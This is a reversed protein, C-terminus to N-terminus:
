YFMLRGKERFEYRLDHTREGIQKAPIGGVLTFPPVDRTVVAGAAVVAGEGISVGHLIVVNPGIWARNGITIPGVNDATPRFYPDNYNHQGTYLSVHSGINVNDGIRIGVRRADLLAHDGIVSGRGISLNWSGRIEAGHYVVSYPAMRIGYVRRYLLRRLHHSPIQGVQDISYRYYSLLFLATRDKIARVVGGVSRAPPQSTAAHSSDAPPLGVEGVPRRAIWMRLPLCLIAFILWKLYLLVLAIIFLAYTM